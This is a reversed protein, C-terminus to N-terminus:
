TDYVECTDPDYTKLIDIYFYSQSIPMDCKGTMKEANLTKLV